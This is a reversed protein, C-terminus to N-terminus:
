KTIHMPPTTFYDIEKEKYTRLNDEMKNLVMYFTQMDADPINATIDENLKAFAELMQPLEIRTKDTIKLLHERKDAPNVDRYVYGKESLDNIISVILSKDKDLNAALAKQTLLGDNRYILMLAYYYRNIDLHALRGSILNLCARGLRLLTYSIPEVMQIKM